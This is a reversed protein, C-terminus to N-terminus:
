GSAGSPIGSEVGTTAGAIPVRPPYGWNTPGYPDPMTSTDVLQLWTALQPADITRGSFAMPTPHGALYACVAGPVDVPLGGSADIGHHQLVLTM